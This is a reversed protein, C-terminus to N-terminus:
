SLYEERYFNITKMLGEKLTHMKNDITWGIEDKAMDINLVKRKVGVFRDTNYVIEGGFGTLEKIMEALDRISTEIGSGINLLEGSYDLSMLLGEIQDDVYILERTQKGDGWM